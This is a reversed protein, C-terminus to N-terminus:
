DSMYFWMRACHTQQLSFFLAIYAIMLWDTLRGKGQEEKHEGKDEGEEGSGGWTSYSPSPLPSCLCSCAGGGGGGGEAELARDELGEAEEGEKRGRGKGGGEGRGGGNRRGGRDEEGNERGGWRGRGRRGWTLSYSQISLRSGPITDTTDTKRTSEIVDKGLGRGTYIAVHHVTLWETIQSKIFQTDCQHSRQTQDPTLCWPDFGSRLFM